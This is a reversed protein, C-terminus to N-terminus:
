PAKSLAFDRLEDQGDFFLFYAMGGVVAVRTTPYRRGLSVIDAESGPAWRAVLAELEGGSRARGVLRGGEALIAAEVRPGAPHQETLRQLRGHHLTAERHNFAWSGLALALALIAATILAAAGFVFPKKM